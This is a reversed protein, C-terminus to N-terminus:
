ENNNHGVKKFLTKKLVSQRVQTSDHHTTQPTSSALTDGELFPNGCM